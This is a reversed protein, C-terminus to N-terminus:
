PFFLAIVKIDEPSAQYYVLTVESRAYPMRYSFYSVRVSVRRCVIKKGSDLEVIERAGKNPHSRINHEAKNFYSELGPTQRIYLQKKKDIEPLYSLNM